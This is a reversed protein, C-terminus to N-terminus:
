MTVHGSRTGRVTSRGGVKSQLGKVAAPRAAAAREQQGAAALGASLSTLFAALDRLLGLSSSSFAYRCALRIARARRLPRSFLKNAGHRSRRQQSREPSTHTERDRGLGGHWPPGESTLVWSGPLLGGCKQHGGWTGVVSSTAQSWVPLDWQSLEWRSPPPTPRPRSATEASAPAGSRRTGPARACGQQAKRCRGAAHSSTPISPMQDARCTTLPGLLGRSPTRGPSPSLSALCPRALYNRPNAASSQAKLRLALVSPACSARADAM